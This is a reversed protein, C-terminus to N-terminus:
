LALFSPAFREVETHCNCRSTLNMEQRISYDFVVVGIGTSFIGRWHGLCVSNKKKEHEKMLATLDHTVSVIETAM